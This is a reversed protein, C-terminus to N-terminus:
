KPTFLKNNKRELSEVAPMNVEKYAQEMMSPLSVEKNLKEGLM